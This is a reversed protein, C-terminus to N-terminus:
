SRPEKLSPFRAPEYSPTSFHAKNLGVFHEPGDCTESANKEFM